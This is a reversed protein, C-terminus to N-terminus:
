RVTLFILLQFAAVVGILMWFAGWAFAKWHSRTWAPTKAVVTTAITM